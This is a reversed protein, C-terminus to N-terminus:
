YKLNSTKTNIKALIKCRLDIFFGPIIVAVRNYFNLIDTYELIEKSHFEPINHIEEAELISSHKIANNVRRLQDIELVYRIDDLEINEEKFFKRLYKKNSAKKKDFKSYIVSLFHKLAIEFNKYGYVIKM